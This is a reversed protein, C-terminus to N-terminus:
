YFRWGFIPVNFPRKGAQRVSLLKTMTNRDTHIALLDGYSDQNLDGTILRTVPGPLSLRQPFGYSGDARGFLVTIRSQRSEGFIIDIVGNRDLDATAVSEPADAIAVERKEPYTGNGANYLVSITNNGRNAVILDRDGDNDVDGTDMAFPNVGTPILPGTGFSGRGDGVIVAVGGQARLAVAFDPNGDGTLDDILVDGPDTGGAPITRELFTGDGNGLYITLTDTFLNTVIIDLHGDGTVDAAEIDTPGESTSLTETSRFSPTGGFLIRIERGSFNLCAADLIGDENFDGAALAQPVEGFDYVQPAGFVGPPGGPLLTGSGVGNVFANAVVVDTVDDANFDGILADVPAAGTQYIVPPEFLDALDGIPQFPTPTTTATPSSTATPTFTPTTTATATPSFTATPSPTLTATPTNTHTPTSTPTDTPTPSHTPTDTPTATFTPSPTATPTQTFTPTPLPTGTPSPSPTATATPTGSHRIGLRGIPVVPSDAWVDPELSVAQVHLWLSGDWEAFNTEYWAGDVLQEPTVFDVPQLDWFIQFGKLSEHTYSGGTERDAFQVRARAPLAASQQEGTPDLEIPKGDQVIAVAPVSLVRPTATPTATPTPTQTRTPTETPTDTPTLTSTPSSTPTLTPTQTFTPTQTSTPTQTATPTHTPTPSPLFEPGGYVIFIRDNNPPYGLIILDKREDADWYGSQMFYPTLPVGPTAVPVPVRIPEDFFWKEGSPVVIVAGHDVRSSGMDGILIDKADDGTVEAISLSLPFRGSPFRGVEVMRGGEANLLLYGTGPERGGPTGSLVALDPLGDRNVDLVGLTQPIPLYTFNWKTFFGRSNNILIAVGSKANGFGQYGIALDDYGDGTFDAAVIDRPVSGYNRTELSRDLLGSETGLWLEFDEPEPQILSTVIDPYQDTDRNAQIIAVQGSGMGDIQYDRPDHFGNWKGGKNIWVALSQPGAGVIDLFGDRNLDTLEIELIQAIDSPLILPPAPDRPRNLNRLVYIASPSQGSVVIDPLRDGDVDGVALGSLLNSGTDGFSLRIEQIRRQDDPQEGQSFAGAVSVSILLGFYLGRM